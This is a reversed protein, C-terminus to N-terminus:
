AGGLTHAVRIPASRLATLAFRQGGDQYRGGAGTSVAGRVGEGGGGVAAGQPLALHPVDSRGDVGRRDVRRVADARAAHLLARDGRGRRGDVTAGRPSRPELPDGDGDPEQRVAPVIGEVAGQPDGAPVQ